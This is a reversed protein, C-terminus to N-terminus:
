QYGDILSYEGQFMLIRTIFCFLMTLKKSISFKGMVKFKEIKNRFREAVAKPGSDIFIKTLKHMVRYMENLEESVAEANVNRFPGNLWQESKITFNLANNWLKEYPDKAAFMQSLLPFKSEEWELLGKSTIKFHCMFYIELLRIITNIGENFNITTLEDRANMLSKTIRALTEVNVTMKELTM